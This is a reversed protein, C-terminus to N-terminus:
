KKLGFIGGKAFAPQRSARRSASRKRSSRAPPADGGKKEEVVVEAAPAGGGAEQAMAHLQGVAQFYSKRQLWKPFNGNGACVTFAPLNVLLGAVAERTARKINLSALNDDLAARLRRSLAFADQGKPPVDGQIGMEAWAWPLLLVAFLMEEPLQGEEGHLRDVVALLNFLRTRREEGADPDTLCPEYFPFLVFFLGSDVALRAWPSSAGGRLDKFFEDRIRSDPCVSLKDRHRKIAEWTQAEITFDSRAAHRIARMMRVPDRIIRREPDGVIRIIRNKLDEVGGVYDIVSFNEVEYFLANITLDRRFADEAPTGFTNNSALVQDEVQEEGNGNGNGNLDYESSCRFTSVEVIKGGRFFVQVLRFRRGIIRSNKFLKRLEGPHADTSIDFDKPTKGLYIDRVGGGVLYATHGADRLRYLVKLAERDISQRSVPHEARPIILPDPYQRETMGNEANLSM